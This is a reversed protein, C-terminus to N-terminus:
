NFRDVEASSLFEYNLVTVHFWQGQKGMDVASLCFVYQALCTNDGSGRSQSSWAHRRSLPKEAM